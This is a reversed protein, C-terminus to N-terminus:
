VQFSEWLRSYRIVMNMNVQESLMSNIRPDQNINRNDKHFTYAIYGLIYALPNKFKPLSLEGILRRITTTDIPELRLRLQQKTLIESVLIRFEEEPTQNVASRKQQIQALRGGGEVQSNLRADAMEEANEAIGIQDLQRFSFDVIDDKEDEEDEDAYDFEGEGDDDDEEQMGGGGMDEDEFNDEFDDDDYRDDEFNDEFDDEYRDDDFDDEYRDDEYDSM